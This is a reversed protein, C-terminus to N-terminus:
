HTSFTLPYQFPQTLICYSPHFKRPRLLGFIRLNPAIRFRNCWGARVDHSDIKKKVFTTPTEGTSMLQVNVNPNNSADADVDDLGRVLFVALLLLCQNLLITWIKM